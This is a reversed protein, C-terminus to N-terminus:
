EKNKISFGVDLCGGAKLQIGKQFREYEGQYLQYLILNDTLVPMITYKGPAIESKFEGSADTMLTFIQSPQLVNQVAIKVKEAPKLISSNFVGGTLKATKSKSVINRLFDLEDKAESLLKTPECNSTSLKGDEGRYAWVLYTENQQFSIDCTTGETVITAASIKENGRFSESVSFKYENIGVTIVRGNEFEVKKTSKEISIVKGTFVADVSNYIACLESKACTCASIQEFSGLLFMLALSFILLSFKNKM